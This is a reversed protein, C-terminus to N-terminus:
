EERKTPDHQAKQGLNDIARQLFSQFLADEEPTFGLLVQKENDEICDRIRDYCAYCKELPYIRKIRRDNEDPRMEIFGKGEMRSLIGSVTPHSLDFFAEVDRACPPSESHILYGVIRAQSPTLEFDLLERAMIQDLFFHLSKIYLGYSKKTTKVGKKNINYAVCKLVCTCLICGRKDPFIGCSIVTMNEMTCLNHRVCCSDMM